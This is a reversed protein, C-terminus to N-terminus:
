HSRCQHARHHAEPRFSTASPEKPKCSKCERELNDLREATLELNLTLRPLTGGEHSGGRATKLRRAISVGGLRATDAKWAPEDVEGHGLDIVVGLGFGRHRYGNTATEGHNVFRGGPPLELRQLGHRGGRTVTGVRIAIGIGPAMGRRILIEGVRGLQEVKRIPGDHNALIRRVQPAVDGRDKGLRVSDNLHGISLRCEIVGKAM